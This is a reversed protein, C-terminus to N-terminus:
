CLTVYLHCYQGTILIFGWLFDELILSDLKKKANQISTCKVHQGFFHCMFHMIQFTKVYKHIWLIMVMILIFFMDQLGLLKEYEKTTGGWNKDEGKGLCASIQKEGCYIKTQM